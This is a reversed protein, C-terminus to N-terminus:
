SLSSLWRSFVEEWCTPPDDLPTHKRRSNYWFCFVLIFNRVSNLERTPFYCDFTRLKEKPTEFWLEIYKRIGGCADEHMLGLGRSAM